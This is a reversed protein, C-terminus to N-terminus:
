EKPYRVFKTVKRNSSIEHEHFGDGNSSKGDASTNGAIGIIHNINAADTTVGTVFGIHHAHDVDNVYLFIDDIVPLETDPVLWGKAKALQYVTECATALPIPSAGQYCIDLVMTASECCYSDGPQGGAWRQIGEIRQGKNAGRERIYLLKRMEETPSSLIKSM